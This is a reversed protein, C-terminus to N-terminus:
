GDRVYESKAESDEEEMWQLERQYEEEWEAERREIIRQQVEMIALYPGHKQAQSGQGSQPAFQKRLMTMAGMFARFEAIEELDSDTARLLGSKIIDDLGKEFGRFYSLLPVVLIAQRAREIMEDDGVMEDTIQRAGEQASRLRDLMDRYVPGAVELCMQYVDELVLMYYWGQDEFLERRDPEKDWIGPLRSELIQRGLGEQPNDIWGYDDYEGKVPLCVPQYLEYCYSPGDPTNDKFEYPTIAIMRITDNILIPLQTIGCTGNWSGM